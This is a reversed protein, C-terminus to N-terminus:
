QEGRHFEAASLLRKAALYFPRKILKGDLLAVGAALAKRFREPRNAPVAFFSRCCTLHSNQSLHSIVHAL